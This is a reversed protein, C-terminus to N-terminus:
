VADPPVFGRFLQIKLFEPAKKSQKPSSIKSAMEMSRHTPLRLVAPAGPGSAMSVSIHRDFAYRERDHVISMTLSSNM